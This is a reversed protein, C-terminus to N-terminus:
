SAPGFEIGPSIGTRTRIVSIGTQGAQQFAALAPNFRICTKPNISRVQLGLRNFSPLWAAKARAIWASYTRLSSRLPFVGLDLGDITAESSDLSSIFSIFRSWASSMPGFSGAM